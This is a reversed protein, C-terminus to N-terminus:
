LHDKVREILKGFDTDADIVKDNLVAIYSDGFEEILEQQRESIYAAGALFTPSFRRWPTIRIPLKYERCKDILRSPVVLTRDTSRETFVPGHKSLEKFVVRLDEESDFTLTLLDMEFKISTAKKNSM